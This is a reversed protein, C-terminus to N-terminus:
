ELGDAPHRRPHSGPSSCRHLVGGDCSRHVRNCCTQSEVRPTKGKTAHSRPLQFRQVTYQLKPCARIAACRSSGLGPRETHQAPRASQSDDASGSHERDPSLHLSLASQLVSDARTELTSSTRSCRSWGSVPRAGRSESRLGPPRSRSSPLAVRAGDRQSNEPSM